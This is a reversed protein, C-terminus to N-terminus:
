EWIEATPTGTSVFADLSTILYGDESGTTFSQAVRTPTSATAPLISVYSTSSTTQGTNGILLHPGVTTTLESELTETNGIGDTFGLKYRIRHGADADILKYTSSTATPIDTEADDSDVRVWQYSYPEVVGDTDEVKLVRATLTRGIRATGDIALIGTPESNVVNTAESTTVEDNDGDDTFSVRAKIRHMRDGATITYTSSSANDIDKHVNDSDVLIWQVSFGSDATATAVGDGDTIASTNVELAQGVHARGTVVPQSPPKAPLHAFGHGWTNNPTPSGRALANDKLYTATESPSYDPFREKVVAALGAVHPASFAPAM